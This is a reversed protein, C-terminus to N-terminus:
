MVTASLIKAATQECCLHGYDAATEVLLEFAGEPRSARAPQSCRRGRSISEGETLLILERAHSRLIGPRSVTAEVVVREGSGADQVRAVYEGPEVAVTLLAPTAVEHDVPM